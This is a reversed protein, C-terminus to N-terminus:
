QSKNFKMWNTETWLDLRDLKRQLTNRVGSLDSSEGLKAFESFDCEIEKDLDGIFM